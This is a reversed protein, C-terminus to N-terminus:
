RLKSVYEICNPLAATARYPRTFDVCYNFYKTTVKLPAHHIKSVDNWVWSGAEISPARGLVATMFGAAYVPNHGQLLQSVGRQQPSIVVTTTGWVKLAHRVAAEAKPTPDPQPVTVGFALYALINFGAKASGARNAVGQPGGGGVQSYSMVDVAQWAMAVQIGSFPVPYSLVVTHPPLHPAVQTYWRPVSVPQMVFPLASGFATAAPLLALITVGVVAGVGMLRAESGKARVWKPVDFRVHQLIIALMVSAALFGVVMFRQVIINEILPIHAFVRVPEWAGKREGFSCAICLALLFGYFWLRRDRFWIATGAVLVGLFGWGMFASSPFGSGSYGGLTAYVNPGHNIGASVFSSGDYGGLAGINPWILGSLHAPGDLAFWVPYALLAGSVVVAIGLAQLAHPIAAKLRERDLVFGAGALVVVAIVAVMVIVTLLETSMFFQLFLLLGLAVGGARASHQQRWLVEDLVGLILPVLMVAATMLHAFQLSTLVSPSFGFLLGGIYAAPMWRVWRRLLLLMAFASLAPALTAALNLSAVPGWIWTVPILPISMGLVSTQSLLNIGGPHFLASSYLPNHGHAVATAPWQFFWLFLAPDGCGCLTHTSAGASWAHWWLVFAILLYSTGAIAVPV